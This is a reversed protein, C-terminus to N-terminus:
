YPTRFLKEPSVIYELPPALHLGFPAQTASAVPFPCSPKFMYPVYYLTM